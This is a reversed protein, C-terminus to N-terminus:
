KHLNAKAKPKIACQRQSAPSVRVFRVECRAMGNASMEYSGKGQLGDFSPACSKARMNETSGM